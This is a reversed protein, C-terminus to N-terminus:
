HTKAIAPHPNADISENLTRTAPRCRSSGTRRVGLSLPDKGLRVATHPRVRPCTGRHFDGGLGGCRRAVVSGAAAQAVLRFWSVLM